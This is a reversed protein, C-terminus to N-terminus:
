KKALGLNKKIDGLSMVKKGINLGFASNINDTVENAFDFLYYNQSIHSCEVQRLTDIIKDINYKDGLRIETLRSILLALFCILFHANIHRQTRLFIPRADLTSKTIKFAEEIRWLGHYAELISDDPMDLESTVIAYYGDFKEEEKIKELNLSLSKGTDLVEGTKKDFQLNNIYSAAGHAITKRYKSPNEILDVAKALLQERKFKSRKAYKESYIIVQKQDIVVKKTKKSKGHGTITVDIKVPIVRSKRKYEKEKGAEYGSEKLAYKKFDADAGKVSKSFIYGDGLVTNFAINDGSNLAKDAVVIIRGVNYKKRIEKMVPMLTQSDHTNGAFINYTVPISNRDLVLGMQVIPKGRKDKGAGKRRYEDEKDTEFYYNTVDYYVLSTDRKYQEVVKEHLFHQLSTAIEDYHSLCEYIDDITFKFNDFFRDRIEFTGLKSRPYLLRGFLLLRMIAESNFKFSEHRRKNDLFRDIELEHYIKSFVIHGYNKRNSNGREVQAELPIQFEINKEKTAEETMAKAVEKFHAIPDDYIKQLQDLYGVSKIVKAKPKGNQDRYGHVIQLYTRGTKKSVCKKLYM